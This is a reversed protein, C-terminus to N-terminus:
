CQSFFKTNHQKITEFSKKKLALGEEKSLHLFEYMALCLSYEISDKIDCYQTEAVTGNSLQQTSTITGILDIHEPYEENKLIFFYRSDNSEVNIRVVDGNEKVVHLDELGVDPLDTPDEFLFHDYNRKVTADSPEIDDFTQCLLGTFLRMNFDTVNNVIPNILELDSAYKEEELMIPRIAFALAFVRTAVLSNELNMSNVKDQLAKLAVSKLHYGSVNKIIDFSKSYLTNTFVKTVRDQIVEEALKGDVENLADLADPYYSVTREALLKFNLKANKVIDKDANNENSAIHAKLIPILLKGDDINKKNLSYIIAEHVNNIKKPDGMLKAVEIIKDLGELTSALKTIYYQLTHKSDVEEFLKKAAIYDDTIIELSIQTPGMFSLYFYILEIEAETEEDSDVTNCTKNVTDAHSEAADLINFIEELKKEQDVDEHKLEEVREKFETIPRLLVETTCPTSSPAGYCLGLFM